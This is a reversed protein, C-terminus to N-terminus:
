AFYYTSLGPSYTSYCYSFTNGFFSIFFQTVAHTIMYSQLLLYDLINNFVNLQNNFSPSLYLQFLLFCLPDHLSCLIPILCELIHSSLYIFHSPFSSLAISLFPSTPLSFNQILVRPLIFVLIILYISGTHLSFSM